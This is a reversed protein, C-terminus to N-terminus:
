SYFFTFFIDNVFNIEINWCKQNGQLLKGVADDLSNNEQVSSGEKRDQTLDDSRHQDMHPRKNSLVKLIFCHDENVKWYM